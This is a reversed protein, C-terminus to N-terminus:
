KKESGHDIYYAWGAQKRPNVEEVRPLAEGLANILTVSANRYSRADSEQVRGYGERVASRYGDRLYNFLKMSEPEIFGLHALEAIVSEPDRGKTPLTLLGVFKRCL